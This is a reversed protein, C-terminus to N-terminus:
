TTSGTKQKEIMRIKRWADRVALKGELIEIDVCADRVGHWDKRLRKADLDAVTAAIHEEYIM